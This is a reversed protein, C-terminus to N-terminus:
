RLHQMKTAVIFIHLLVEPADLKALLILFAHAHWNFGVYSFYFLLKNKVTRNFLTLMRVMCTTVLESSIM